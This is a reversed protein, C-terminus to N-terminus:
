FTLGFSYSARQVTGPCATSGEARFVMSYHMKVAEAAADQLPRDELLLEGLRLQQRTLVAGENEDWSIVAEERLLDAHQEQLQDRSVSAALYIVAEQEGDLHAAM